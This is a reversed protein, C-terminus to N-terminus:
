DQDVDHRGSWVVGFCSSYVAETPLMDRGDHSDLYTKKNRACGAFSCFSLKSIQRKVTDIKKVFSFVNSKPHTYNDLFPLM